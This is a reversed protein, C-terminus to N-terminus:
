YTLVDTWHMIWSKPSGLNLANWYADMADVRLDLVDDRTYGSPIPVFRALRDLLMERQSHPLQNMLTILTLADRARANELISRLAEARMSDSDAHSDFGAVAAKFAPTADSFYPTGPGVEPRATVEAGAPIIVSRSATRFEIWGSTVYVKGTGHQEVRLTFACGLDYLTASPSDVALSFPPAWMRASITGYDLAIRHRTANTAILRVRSNPEVDVVGLNAVRIRVRANRDTTLVEGVALDTRNVAPSGSLQPLGQLAYVKWPKGPRWDFRAHVSIAILAVVIAIVSASVPLLRQKIRAVWHTWGHVPQVPVMRQHWLPEQTKASFRALLVELQEIEPDPVDSRDWLYDRNPEIM